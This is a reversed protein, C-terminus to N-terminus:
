SFGDVQHSFFELAMIVLIAFCFSFVSCRQHNQGGTLKGTEKEKAIEIEM